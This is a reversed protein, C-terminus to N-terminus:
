SYARYLKAQRKAQPKRSRAVKRNRFAIKIARDESIAIFRLTDCDFRLKNAVKLVKIPLAKV